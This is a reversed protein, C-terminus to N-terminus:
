VRCIEIIFQRPQFEVEYAFRLFYFLSIVIGFNCASFQFVIEFVVSIQECSIIVVFKEKKLNFGNNIFFYSLLLIIGFDVIYKTFEILPLSSFAPKLSLM